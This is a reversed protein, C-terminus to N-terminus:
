KKTRKEVSIYGEFSVKLKYHKTATDVDMHYFTETGCTYEVIDYVPASEFRNNIAKIVALPLQNFLISRATGLLEGSYDFYAIVRTYNLVFNASIVDRGESWKVDEAGKFEKQFTIQAPNKKDEPGAFAATSILTVAAAFAVIFKKM